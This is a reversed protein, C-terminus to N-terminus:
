RSDTNDTLALQGAEVLADVLKGPQHDAEDGYHNRSNEEDVPQALM